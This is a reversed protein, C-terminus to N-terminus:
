TTANEDCDNDSTFFIASLMFNFDGTLSLSPKGHINRAEFLYIELLLIELFPFLLEGGNYQNILRRITSTILVAFIFNGYYYRFIVIKM